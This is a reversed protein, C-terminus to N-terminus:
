RDLRSNWLAFAPMRGQASVRRAERRAAALKPHIMVEYVLAQLCEPNATRTARELALRTLDKESRCKPPIDGFRTALFKQARPWDGTRQCARAWQFIATDDLLRSLMAAHRAPGLRLRCDLIPQLRSLTTHLVTVSNAARKWTTFGMTTGTSEVSDWLTWLQFLRINMAAYDMAAKMFPRRKAPFTVGLGHAAFQELFGHPSAAQPLRFRPYRDRALALVSNLPPGNKVRATVWMAFEAWDLYDDIASKLERWSCEFRLPPRTDLLRPSVIGLRAYQM